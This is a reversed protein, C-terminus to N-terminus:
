RFPLHYEKVALSPVYSSLSGIPTNSTVMEEFRRVARDRDLEMLVGGLDFVINKIM